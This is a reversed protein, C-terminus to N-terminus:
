VNMLVHFRGLYEYTQVYMHIYSYTYMHAQAFFSTQLLFVYGYM